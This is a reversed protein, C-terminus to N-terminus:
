CRWSSRSPIPTRSSTSCSGNTVVLRRRGCRWARAGPRAARGPGAGAPRPVGARGGARREEAASSPSAPWSPPSASSARGAAGSRAGRRRAGGSAQVQTRVRDIDAWNAARGVSGVTFSPAWGLRELRGDDDVAARLREAWEALADLRPAAPQRREVRCRTDMAVVRTSRACASPRAGAAAGGPRPAASGSKSWTGTRGSSCRWRTCTTSAPGPALLLRLPRELEPDEIIRDEFAEWRLEFALQSAIEDLVTVRPAARSRHPARQSSAPRLRAAHLHRGSGAGAARGPLSGLRRRPKQLETRIRDALEGAAKETFTIAAIRDADVGAEVLAVFRDVLCTTKGSGAGAEVFMTEGLRTRMAERVAADPPAM